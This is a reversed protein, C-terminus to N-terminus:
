AREASLHAEEGWFAEHQVIDSEMESRLLKIAMEENPADVEWRNQYEGCTVTALYNRTINAHVM